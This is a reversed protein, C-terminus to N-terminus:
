QRIVDNAMWTTVVWEAWSCQSTVYVKIFRVRASWKLSRLFCTMYCDRRSNWLAYAATDPVFCWWCRKKTRWNWAWHYFMIFGELYILVKPNALINIGIQDWEHQIETPKRHHPNTRQMHPYAANSHHTQPMDRIKSHKRWDSHPWCSQCFSPVNKQQITEAPKKHLVHWAHQKKSRKPIQKTSPSSNGASEWTKDHCSTQHHDWTEGIGFTCSSACRIGHFREKTSMLSSPTARELKSRTLSVPLSACGAALLQDCSGDSHYLNTYYM